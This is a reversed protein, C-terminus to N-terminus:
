EFKLGSYFSLATASFDTFIGSVGEASATYSEASFVPLVVAKEILRNEAKLIAAAKEEGNLRGAKQCLAKFSEPAYGTIEPIYESVFGLAFDSEAKLPAYAIQYSGSNIASVLATEDTVEVRADCSIGFTKQLNQIVARLQNEHEATCKITISVGNEESEELAKEWYYDAKKTDYNIKAASGATLRYSKLGSVCSEPVIGSAASTMYGSKEMLSSDFGSCVALRFDTNSMVPDGCNFILAWVTNPNKFATIDKAESVRSFQEFDLPSYDYTGKLLKSGRTNFENNVSFFVSKPKAPHSGFYRENKRIILSTDEYWASIYFPGNYILYKSLLGYRGGTLNFFKENCPMAIPKTLTLLFDDDPYELEIVLAFDGAKTVGLANENLKGSNIKEANKICFLNAADPAHTNKAVARRLAFIFDDATVSMDFETKYNEGIINGAAETVLWQADQRLTFTYTLGDDSVKWDDAVGATIEGTETLRVLGEFCNNIITKAGKDTAIQPDLYVPDNDIPVTLEGGEGTDKGCASFVAFILCASLFVSIIKKM